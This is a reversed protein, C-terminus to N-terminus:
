WWACAHANQLRCRQCDGTRSTQLNWPLIKTLLARDLEFKWGHSAAADGQSKKGDGDQGKCSDGAGQRARDFSVGRRTRELYACRARPPKGMPGLCETVRMVQAPWGAPALALSITVLELVQSLRVAWQFRARVQGQRLDRGVPSELKLGGPSEPLAM